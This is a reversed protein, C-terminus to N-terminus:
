PTTYLLQLDDWNISQGQDTNGHSYGNSVLQIQNIQMTGGTSWKALWDQYLNVSFPTSAGINSVSGMYYYKTTTTDSPSSGSGWYYSLTNGDSTKIRLEVSYTGDSAQAGLHLVGSLSGASNAVSSVATSSLTQSLIAYTNGGTTSTKGSYTGSNKWSSDQILATAGNSATPVWTGANEFGPNIILNQFQNVTFPTSVSNGNADTATVTHPGNISPPM